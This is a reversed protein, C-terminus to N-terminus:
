GTQTEQSEPETTLENLGCWHDFAIDIKCPASLNEHKRLSKCVCVDGM